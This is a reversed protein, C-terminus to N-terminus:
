GFGGAGTLQMITKSGEISGTPDPDVCGHLDARTEGEIVRCADITQQDSTVPKLRPNYKRAKRRFSDWRRTSSQLWSTSLTSM